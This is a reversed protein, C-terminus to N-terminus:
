GNVLWLHDLCWRGPLCTKRFVTLLAITGDPTRGISLSAM